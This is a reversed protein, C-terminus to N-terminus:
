ANNSDGKNILSYLDDLRKNINAIDSAYDPAKPKLDEETIEVLRFIRLTSKGSPDSIKQYCIPQESDMLMLNQNAIMPYAKAGDLGNVYVYYNRQYYNQM